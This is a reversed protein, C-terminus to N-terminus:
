KRRLSFATYHIGTEDDVVMAGGPALYQRLVAFPPLPHEKLAADLSKFFRSEEARRKLRDQTRRSTALDYLMRMGEEPRNFSIMAPKRSGTQRRIKSAVLKFDLEEALSKAGAATVLAQRYLSARNALLLYDDLIGFCPSIRPGQRSDRPGQPLNDGLQPIELQYYTKGAHTQRKWEGRKKVFKELAKKVADTDSLKLGMLSAQSRITVPREVWSVMSVRGELSKIIEREFDIGTPGMIRREMAKALAGDGRFSDYVTALTSYTTEVEWHFTTYSAATAPVWPEPKVPGSKLAIMKLVGSRPSELLLHAQLISDFAGADLIASGGVASLGDLGLAPLMAVGMRVGVNQRGIGRMMGIPDVYWTLQPSEGKAGRCRQMVAAFNPNEALTDGKGGNWMSLLGKLVEFDSGFVITSDKEFFILKRRRPGVGDYISLKTGAITKESATAQSEDLRATGREILKRANSLQDGADILVVVAPPGEDGVVVALALEGQAVALIQEISLGTRERLDALAESVSGYVSRVLPKMQEDRSMRGLATNMFREAMDPADAVSFFVVTQEPLLRPAAPREALVSTTYIVTALLPASLRALWRYRSCYTGSNM